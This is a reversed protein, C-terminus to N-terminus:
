LLGELESAKIASCLGHKELLLELLIRNGPSIRPSPTIEIKRLSNADLHFDYHLCPPLLRGQILKRVMETFRLHSTDADGFLDFPFIPTLYRWEHQFEWKKNKTHGFDSFSLTLSGETESTIVPELRSRDNTYNVKRLMGECSITFPTFIGRSLDELPIITGRGGEVSVNEIPIGSVAALSERTAPYRKFPFKPLSLRVGSELSTYMKWMPISEEEDDTWCSAFFFRGLNAIDRSVNEQPDDMSSLPMFRLTQNRLILALSELSTYHYLKEPLENSM